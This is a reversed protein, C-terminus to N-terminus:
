PMVHTTGIRSTELYVCESLLITTVWYFILVFLYTLIFFFRIYGVKQGIWLATAYPLICDPLCGKLRPAVWPIYLEGIEGMGEDLFIKGLKIFAGISSSFVGNHVMMKIAVHASVEQATTGMVSPGTFPIYVLRRLERFLFVAPSIFFKIPYCLDVKILLYATSPVVTKPSARLRFPFKNWEQGMIELAM